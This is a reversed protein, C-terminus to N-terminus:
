SDTEHARLHTYSVADYMIVQMSCPSYTTGTSYAYEIWELVLSNTPNAATFTTTPTQVTNVGNSSLDQATAYYVVSSGRTLGSLEASWQCESTSCDTRVQSSTMGVVGPPTLPMM